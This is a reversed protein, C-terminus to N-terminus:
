SDPSAKNTTILTDQCFKSMMGYTLFPLRKGCNLHRFARCLLIEAKPWMCRFANWLTSRQLHFWSFLLRLIRSTFTSVLIILTTFYLYTIPTLTCSSFSVCSIIGPPRRVFIDATGCFNNSHTYLVTYSLLGPQQNVRKSLPADLGNCSPNNIM